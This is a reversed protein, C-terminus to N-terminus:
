FSNQKVIWAAKRGQANTQANHTNSPVPLGCCARQNTGGSIFDYTPQVRLAPRRGGCYTAAEEGPLLGTV